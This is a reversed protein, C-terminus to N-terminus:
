SPLRRHQRASESACLTERRTRAAPLPCSGSTRRRQPRGVLDDALEDAFVRAAKRRDDDVDGVAHRGVAIGLLDPLHGRRKPAHRRLVAVHQQEVDVDGGAAVARNEERRALVIQGVVVGPQKNRMDLGNGGAISRCAWIRSADTSSPATPNAKLASKAETIMNRSM